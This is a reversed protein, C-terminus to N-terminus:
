WPTRCPKGSEYLALNRKLRPLADSRNHRPALEIARSQWKKADEYNGTEALAMALTEAHELSRQRGFLANALELAKAGDRFREDPCTAWLRAAAHTLPMSQPFVKLSKSLSDTAEAYKGMKALAVVRGERSAIHRPDIKVALAYHTVALPHKGTKMALRALGLHADFQQPDGAVAQRFHTLAEDNEGKGALMAALSCHARSFEPQLRIAQRFQKIAGDRDGSLGLASGLNLRLSSDDPDAQVAKRLEKLAVSLNGARAAAVGIQTHRQAGIPLAEVAAMLPDSLSARSYGRQKLHRAAKDTQKLNRYAMALPYHLASANPQLELATKFHGAAAEHDRRLAAIRGLGAHAAACADDKALAREFFPKAEDPRNAELLTQALGIMAPADDAKISLAQKFAAAADDADGRWAYVKALYYFWHFTRPALAQANRYCAEAADHLTYAHYLMGMEGYSRGLETEGAGPTERMAALESQKIKLQQQVAQDLNSIDPLPVEVLDPLKSDSKGCGISSGMWLSGLLLVAALRAVHRTTM